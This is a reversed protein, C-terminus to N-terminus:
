QGLMRIKRKRKKEKAKLKGVCSATAQVGLVGDAVNLLALTEVYSDFYLWDSIDNIHLYWSQESNREYSCLNGEQDELLVEGNKRFGIPGYAYAGCEFKIDFQKTWSEARGYEKMVWVPMDEDDRCPILALLGDVVAMFFESIEQDGQLSKPMAMERFVEDEMNFSVILHHFPRQHKPTRAPWHVAGNFFSNCLSNGGIPEGFYYPPGPATFSRWAGTRLTYIEVLSHTTAVVYVVRVVKYDDTKPCYGFGLSQNEMLGGRGINPHPISIAKQICPNCLVYSDFGRTLCFLGNSSGIVHMCNSYCLPGISDSPDRIFDLRDTVLSREQIQPDLSLLRIRIAPPRDKKLRYDFHHFVLNSPYQPISLARSLYTAIFHPSSILSCWTKSVCRFRIVSKVSLRSLIEAVVENPLSNSMTKRKGTGSSSGTLLM